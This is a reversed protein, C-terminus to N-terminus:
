RSTRTLAPMRHGIYGLRQMHQMLISMAYRHRTIYLSVKSPVLERIKGYMYAVREGEQQGLWAPAVAVSGKALM